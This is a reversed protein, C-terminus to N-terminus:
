ESRAKKLLEDAKDLIQPLFKKGNIVACQGAVSRIWEIFAIMEGAALDAPPKQQSAPDIFEVNLSRCYSIFNEKTQKTADRPCINWATSFIHPKGTQRWLIGSNAREEETPQILEWLREYDMSTKYM